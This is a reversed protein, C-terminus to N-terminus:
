RDLAVFGDPLPYGFRACLLRVDHHDEPRAPYGTHWRLCWEPAECRVVRGAITGEGDLAEAPFSIASEVGGYHLEGTSMVEYVHLDVRRSDGDHLVFNWPRDDAWPYLRDVGLDLFVRIALDFTSASLWLDLDTHRRTQEGLLADVAWGGNVCVDVGGAVLAGVVEVAGRDDM